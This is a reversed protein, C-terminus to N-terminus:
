AIDSIAKNEYTTYDDLRQPDAHFLLDIGKIDASGDKHKRKKNKMFFRSYRQPSVGEYPAFSVKGTEETDSIADDHLEIALSKEYPEIYFLETIGAGVIHRACSHCPYTTSYMTKNVTSQGEVRGLKLIADMEAHIARSYEIISKAKTGNVLQLSLSGENEGEGSLLNNIEIEIIQSVEKSVDLDLGLADIQTSVNIKLNKVAAQLVANLEEGLKNKYLDNYCVKGKFICRYDNKDEEGSYQGGGFSPVDNCGTSIIDGFSNMISAGVQRSLCASQLSASFAAYMGKEHNTPTVGNYGHIIKLFRLASDSIRKAHNHVNRIFYDSMHVLKEVQQGYNDSGKRDQEILTEAQHRKMGNSTLSRKRENETSILAVMYFNPGYIAKFLDAEAPNKLQDVIYAIRASTKSPSSPDVQDPNETLFKDRAAAIKKVSHNALFAQNSERLKDGSNQLEEYRDFGSLSSLGQDPSLEEIVESIKIKVVTYGGDKLSLELADSFERTGAGIAGCLGIILENSRRKEISETTSQNDKSPKSKSSVKLKQVSM